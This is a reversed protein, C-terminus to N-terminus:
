ASSAIGNRDYTWGSIMMTAIGKPMIPASIPCRIRPMESPMTDINPMMASDPTTMLPPSTSTSKM